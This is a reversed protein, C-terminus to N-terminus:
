SRVARRRQIAITIAVLALAALVAIAADDKGYSLAYIGIPFTQVASYPSYSYNFELTNINANPRNLATFQTSTYSANNMDPQKYLMPEPSPAGYYSATIKATGTGCVNFKDSFNGNSDTYAIDVLGLQTTLHGTGNLFTPVCYATGAPYSATKPLGFYGYINCNNNLSSALLSNPELACTNATSSNYQTHFTVYNAEEVGTTNDSHLYSGGSDTWTWTYTPNALTCGTSLPSFACNEAYAFYDAPDSSQTLTSNYYNLNTDYYIYIPTDPPMPTCGTLATNQCNLATGSVTVASENPNNPNTDISHSLQISTLNSIDVDIPAKLLNGFEDTIMYIFRDYGLAQKSGLLSYSFSDSYSTLKYISFLSFPANVDPGALTLNIQSPGPYAEPAVQELSCSYNIIFHKCVYRESPPMQTVGTAPTVPNSLEIQYSPYSGFASKINYTQTGYALVRTYNVVLPSTVNNDPNVTQNIYVSGILRDTLLNYNILPPLIVNKDSLNATYLNGTTLYQLLTAGGQITYNLSATHVPYQAVAYIDRSSSQTSGFPVDYTCPAGSSCYIGSLIIKGNSYTSVCQGGTPTDNSRYVQTCSSPSSWVKNLSYSYHLPVLFAGGISTNIYTYSSALGTGHPISSNTVQTYNITTTTSSTSTQSGSNSGSQGIGLSSFTSLASQYISPSGQSEAYSFSNPVEIFPGFSMNMLVAADSSNYASGPSNSPVMCTTKGSTPATTLYCFYKANSALSIKSYNYVPARFGLLQIYITNISSGYNSYSSVNSLLYATGNYDMSFDIYPLLGYSRSTAPILPGIPEYPTNLNAPTFNCDAACYTIHAVKYTTTNIYTLNASLPWGYPPQEGNFYSGAGANLFNLAMSNSAVLDSYNVPDIKIETGNPAFVRLMLISSNLNNYFTNRTGLNSCPQMIQNTKQIVQAGESYYIPNLVCNHYTWWDLVYILGQYGAIAVPYHNSPTDNGLGIAALGAFSGTSDNTLVNSYFKAITANNFPGGHAMYDLTSMNASLWTPSYSLPITGAPAFNSKVSYALIDGTTNPLYVYTGGADSAMSYVGGFPVGQLNNNAVITGNSLVGAMEFTPSSSSITGATAGFIFVDDAYDTTMTYPVLSSICDSGTCSNSYGGLGWWSNTNSTLNYVNTVYLNSSQETSSIQWYAKWNSEWENLTNATVVSPPNNTMNLYGKPIFSLVYLYSSMTSSFCATGCTTSYNIIYIKNNPSEAMYIPSEIPGSAFNNISGLTQGVLTTFGNLIGKSGANRQKIQSPTEAIMFTSNGNRFAAPNPNGVSVLSSPFETVIGAPHSSSTVTAFFGDGTYIKFPDLKAASLYNSPSYMDYSLNLFETRNTASSVVAPMSTNYLFYPYMGVNITPYPAKQPVVWITIDRQAYKSCGLGLDDPYCSTWAFYYNNSDGQYTTMYGNQTAGNSYYLTGSGLVSYGGNSLCWSLSHLAGCTATTSFSAPAYAGGDYSIWDEGAFSPNVSPVPMTTSSLKSLTASTDFSYTYQDALNGCPATSGSSCSVTYGVDYHLNPYNASESISGSMAPINAVEAFWTWIGSQNSSPFNQFVNSVTDYGNSINPTQGSYSAAGDYTLAYADSRVLNNFAPGAFSDAVATTNWMTHIDLLENTTLPSSPALCRNGYIGDAMDTSFYELTNSPNPAVPCTILNQVNASNFNIVSSIVPTNSTEPSSTVTFNGNGASGSPYDTVVTGFKKYVNCDGGNPTATPCGPYISTTSTSTTTTTTVSTTLSSNYVCQYCGTKLLTCTQKPNPCYGIHGCSCEPLAYIVQNLTSSASHTSTANNAYTSSSILMTTAIALLVFFRAMVTYEERM